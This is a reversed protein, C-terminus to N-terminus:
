YQGEELQKLAQILYDKNMKHGRAKEFAKVAKGHEPQDGRTMLYAAVVFGTRNVGHTCHIAVFMEPRRSLFEDIFDFIEEVSQREPIMRGPISVKKYEVGDESEDFGSYYKTTNVLDIVLGVPAGMDRCHQLLDEKGFWMDDQLLGSDYACDAMWGELPTKCPVIHTGPVRAGVNSCQLWEQLDSKDRGSLGGWQWGNWKWDSWSQNSTTSATSGNSSWRSLQAPPPAPAARSKAALGPLPPSLSRVPPPAPPETVRHKKAPPQQAEDEEHEDWSRRAGRARSCSSSGAEEWACDQWEQSEEWEGGEDGEAPWDGQTDECWAEESEEEWGEEEWREPPPM